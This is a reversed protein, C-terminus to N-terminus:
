TGNKQYGVMYSVNLPISLHIKPQGYTYKIYKHSVSTRQSTRSSASSITSCLTHLVDLVVLHYCKTSLLLAKKEKPIFSPYAM